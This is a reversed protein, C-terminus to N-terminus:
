PFFLRRVYERWEAEDGEMRYQGVGNALIARNKASAALTFQCAQRAGGRCIAPAGGKAKPAGRTMMFHLRGLVAPIPAGAGPGTMYLSFRWPYASWEYTNFPVRTRSVRNFHYMELWVGGARQLAGRVGEYSRFHPRRDRGLNQYPGRGVGLSSVVGPAIYFHVRQAYTGGGPFPAGALIEMARELEYGLQGPRPAPVYNPFARKPQSRSTRGRWAPTNLNPPPESFRHDIEDVFVLRSRCGFWAPAYYCNAQDISTRLLRAMAPATGAAQLEDETVRALRFPRDAEGGFLHGWNPEQIFLRGDRPLADASGPRIIKRNTEAPGYLVIMPSASATATATAVAFLMM